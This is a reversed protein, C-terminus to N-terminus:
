AGGGAGGMSDVVLETVVSQVAILPHAFCALKLGALIEEADPSDCSQAVQTSLILLDRLVAMRDAELGSAFGLVMTSQGQRLTTLIM